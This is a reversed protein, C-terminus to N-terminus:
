PLAAEILKPLAEIAADLKDPAKGGGQAFDPRGGGRGDVMPTIARMINGAHFRPDGKLQPGVAAVLVAAGGLEAGM